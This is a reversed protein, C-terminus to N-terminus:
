PKLGPRFGEPVQLPSHLPLLSDYRRRNLKAKVKLGAVTTTNAILSVVTEHDVLPLRQRYRPIRNFKPDRFLDCLNIRPRM